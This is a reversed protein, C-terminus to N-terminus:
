KDLAAVAPLTKGELLELFAGGGTSVYSMKEVARREHLALDTDGGGVVTLGSSGALADVIAYTGNAFPEMEFAGMPGNWVITACNSLAEVFTTITRPGIDLAMWGDPISDVNVVKTEAKSSFESGVIVDTPLLLECNQSQAYKRVERATDLLEAEYLSAGVPLEDAAFFTNAMAGGILIKDAHKATNKIAALKTSIKAGGFIAAVPRKPDEFAKAFFDLEKQLLIGAASCAVHNVIGATSAHARHATGFADNVYCDALSALQKAFDDNNETEEKHFRLNELLLVEGPKLESAAESTEPGVCDEAFGVKLGLLESMRAAVPKLSLEEKREGKPRGLHSAVIVAAGADLAHKVTDLAARIRTDDAIQGKDNFPVNLDARVFVTKGNLDVDAIRKM